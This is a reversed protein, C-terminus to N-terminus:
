AAKSLFVLMDTPTGYLTVALSPVSLLGGRSATVRYAIKAGPTQGKHEFKTTLTSGVASFNGTGTQAEILFVTGAINGNRKWKLSNVGTSFGEGVLETPTTPPTKTRINTRPNIGLQAKQTSTVAPNSQIRRVIGRVTNNLSKTAVTETQAAAKLSAKATTVGAISTNLNTQVGNLATIDAATLGLSAMQASATTNFNAIWASLEKKGRPLYDSSMNLTGKNRWKPASLQRRQHTFFSTEDTANTAGAAIFFSKLSEGMVRFIYEALLFKFELVLFEFEVLLFKFEPAHFEFETPRFVGFILKKDDEKDRFEFEMVRFKSESRAILTGERLTRDAADNFHNEPFQLLVQM